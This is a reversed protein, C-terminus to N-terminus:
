DNSELQEPLFRSLPLKEAPLNIEINEIHLRTQTGKQHNKMWTTQPIKQEDVIMTTEVSFTKYLSGNKAYYEITTPLYDSKSITTRWSSYNKEKPDVTRIVWHTDTESELSHTESGSLSLELDSFRFDSGLFSGNKKAGSIRQIRKLAPLYLLQPDDKNPNDVFLLQTGAIEAPSIFKTYSRLVDEDKRVHIEMQRIQKTGNKAHLTMSLTQISNEIQRKAISEEIIEKPELAHAFGIMWFLIMNM